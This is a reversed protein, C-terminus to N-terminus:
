KGEIDSRLVGYMTDDNVVGYKETAGRRLGEWKFGSKKLVNESGSNWHFMTAEIRNLKPFTEFCWRILASVAETAYGKGWASPTIFYGLTWTRYEIGEGAMLGMSGIIKPRQDGESSAPKLCVAMARPYYPSFAESHDLWRSLTDKAVQVTYPYPFRHSMNKVVEKYNGISSLEEADDLVWRRLILRNTEFLITGPEPSPPNPSVLVETTM